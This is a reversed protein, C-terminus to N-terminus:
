QELAEDTLSFVTIEPMINDAFIDYHVVYREHDIRLGYNDELYAVSEPYQGEIAYCHVAARRVGEETSQLSEAATQRAMESLNVVMFAALVALFLVPLGYGLIKARWNKKQRISM